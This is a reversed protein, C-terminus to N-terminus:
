ANQLLVLVIRKKNQTIIVSGNHMGRVIAVVFIGIVIVFIIGIIAPVIDFVPDEVEFM